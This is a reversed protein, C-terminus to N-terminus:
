FERNFRLIRPNFFYFHRDSDKRLVPLQEHSPPGLASDPAPKPLKWAGNAPVTLGQFLRKFIFEPVSGFDRDLDFFFLSRDFVTERVPLCQNM